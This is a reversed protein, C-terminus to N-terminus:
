FIVHMTGGPRYAATGLSHKRSSPPVMTYICKEIRQSNKWRLFSSLSIIRIRHRYTAEVQVPAIHGLIEPVDVLAQDEMEPVVEPVLVQM